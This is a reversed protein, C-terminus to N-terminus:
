SISKEKGNGCPCRNNRGVRAVKNHVPKAAEEKSVSIRHSPSFINKLDILSTIEVSAGIEKIPQPQIRRGSGLEYRYSV